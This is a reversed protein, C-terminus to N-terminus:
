VIAALESEFIQEPDFGMSSFNGAIELGVRGHLRAWLGVALQRLAAQKVDDRWSGSGSGPWASTRTSAM